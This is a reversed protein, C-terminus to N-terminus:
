FDRGHKNALKELATAIRALHDNTENQNNHIRMFGGEVIGPASVTSGLNGQILATRIDELAKVLDEM